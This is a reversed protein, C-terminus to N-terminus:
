TEKLCTFRTQYVLSTDNKQNKEQDTKKKRNVNLSLMM